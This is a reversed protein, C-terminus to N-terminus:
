LIVALYFSLLGMKTSRHSACSPWAARKKLSVEMFCVTSVEKARKLTKNKEDAKKARNAKHRDLHRDKLYGREVIYPATHSDEAQRPQHQTSYNRGDEQPALLARAFLVFVSVRFFRPTALPL